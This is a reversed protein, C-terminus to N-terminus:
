NGTIVSFTELVEMKITYVNYKYIRVYGNIINSNSNDTMTKIM